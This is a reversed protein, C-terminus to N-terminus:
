GGARGGLYRERRNLLLPAIDPAVEARQLIVREALYRLAAGELSGDTGRLRHEEGKHIARPLSREGETALYQRVPAHLPRVAAQLLSRASAVVVASPANGGCSSGRKLAAM